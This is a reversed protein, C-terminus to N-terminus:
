KVKPTFVSTIHTIVDKPLVSSKILYRFVGFKMCRNISDTSSLNSLVIVPIHKTKEKEHIEKLVQFGDRTGPLMIDLLIADPIDSELIKMADDGTSANICVCKASVLKQSIMDSFFKDDEVFLIKKGEIFSLNESEM